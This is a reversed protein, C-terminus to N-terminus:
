QPSGQRMRVTHLSHTEHNKRAKVIQALWEKFKKKGEMVKGMQGLHLYLPGDYDKKM